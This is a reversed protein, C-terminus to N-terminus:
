GEKITKHWRLKAHTDTTEEESLKQKKAQPEDSAMTPEARKELLRLRHSFATGNISRQFKLGETFVRLYQNGVAGHTVGKRSEM